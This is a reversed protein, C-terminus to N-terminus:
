GANKYGELLPVSFYGGVTRGAKRLNKLLDKIWHVHPGVRAVILIAPVPQAMGYGRWVGFGTRLRVVWGELLLRSIPRPKQTLARLLPVM